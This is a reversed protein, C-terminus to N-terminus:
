PLPEKTSTPAAQGDDKPKELRAFVFTETEQPGFHVLVPTTDQTLNFLGTEFVVDPKEDIKFAMRQTDKDVRGSVAFVEDTKRNFYTGAVFGKKDIALQVFRTPEITDKKGSADAETVAFTGLGLWDETNKSPVDNPDITALTAASQAYDM